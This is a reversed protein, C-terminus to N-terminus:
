SRTFIFEPSLTGDSDRVQIDVTQGPAIKWRMLDIVIVTLGFLRTINRTMKV